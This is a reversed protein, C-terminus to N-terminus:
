RSHGSDLCRPLPTLLTADPEDDALPGRLREAGRVLGLKTIINIFTRYPVRALQAAHRRTGSAGLLARVYIERFSREAEFLGETFSGCPGPLPPVIAQAERVLARGRAMQALPGLAGPLWTPADGLSVVWKLGTSRLGDSASPASPDIVFVLEPEGLDKRVEFAWSLPDFEDRALRVAIIDFTATLPPQGCCVAVSAGASQLVAVIDRCVLHSSAMVLVRPRIGPRAEPASHDPSSSQIMQQEEM